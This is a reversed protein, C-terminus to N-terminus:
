RKGSSTRDKLWEVDEKVTAITKQPVPSITKLQKQALSLVLYGAIALVVGVLGYGAWTPWNFGDALAQALTLVLLLGGLALVVGGIALKIAADKATSIEERIEQKALNIEQRVLTQTDNVVGSVLTAISTDREHETM